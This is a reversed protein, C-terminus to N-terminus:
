ILSKITHDDFMIKNVKKTTITHDDFIIKNVSSQQYKHDFVPFNGQQPPQQQTPSSVSSAPPSSSFLEHRRNFPVGPSMSQPGIGILQQSKSNRTLPIHQIYKDSTHQWAWCSRCFYRFCCLERCYYPGHQVGCVSCLSDELYPDVQVKKVFKSTKIEIFAAAVARMYSRSNNFTVRGSGIPYKYKDTDIGAYVVGEFLDNMINALAEATLKGHLAGVFVTKTPDLKQSSLKVFNSDALIWPIVEVDKSKIRKSSIKFYYNASNPSSEDHLICASLLAKVQKESEFIIYVYGKPQAAQQEKGPWEVRIQGFPKFIQILAQENLDWPIGGLFVKPSYNIIRHSRNPLSGRWTCTADFRSASYRHVRAVRDLHNSNNHFQKQMQPRVEESQTESQYLKSSGQWFGVNNQFQVQSSTEDEELPMNPQKLFIGKYDNDGNSFTRNSSCNKQANQSQLLMQQQCEFTLYSKMLDVINSEAIPPSCEDSESSTWGKQQPPSYLNLPNETIIRQLNKTSNNCNNFNFPASANFYDSGLPKEFNQLLSGFPQCTEVNFQFERKNESNFNANPSVSSHTSTSSPTQPSSGGGYFSNPSLTTSDDRQQIQQQHHSFGMM